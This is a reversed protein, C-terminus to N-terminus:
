LDFLEAIQSSISRKDSKSATHPQKLESSNYLSNLNTMQPKQSKLMEFSPPQERKQKQPPPIDFAIPKRKPRQLTVMTDDVRNKMRREPTIPATHPRVVAHQQVRRMQIPAPTTNTSIEPQLTDTQTEICVKMSEQTGQTVMQRRKPTIPPNGIRDLSQTMDSAPALPTMHQNKMKVNRLTSPMSHSGSLIRKPPPLHQLTNPTSSVAQLSPVSKYSGMKAQYDDDIESKLSQSVTIVNGKVNFSLEYMPNPTLFTVTAGDEANQFIAIDKIEGGNFHVQYTKPEGASSQIEDKPAEEAEEEVASEEEGSQQSGEEDYGESYADDYNSYAGSYEDYGEEGSYEDYPEESSSM